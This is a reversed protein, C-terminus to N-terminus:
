LDPHEKQYKAILVQTIQKVENTLKYARKVAILTGVALGIGMEDVLYHAHEGMLTFLAFLTLAFLGGTVSLLSLWRLVLWKDKGAFEINYSKGTKPDTVSFNM